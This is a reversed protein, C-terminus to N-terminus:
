LFNFPESDENPQYETIDQKWSITPNEAETLLHHEFAPWTEPTVDFLTDLSKTMANFHDTLIHGNMTKAPTTKTTLINQTDMNARKMAAIEMARKEGQEKLQKQTNEALNAFIKKVKESEHDRKNLRERHEEPSPSSDENELQAAPKSDEKSPTRHVDSTRKIALEEDTLINGQDDEESPQVFEDDTSSITEGDEDL